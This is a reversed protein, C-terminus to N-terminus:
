ATFLPEIGRPTVMFEHRIVVNELMKQKATESLINKQSPRKEKLRLIIEPFSKYVMCYSNLQLGCTIGSNHHEQITVAHKVNM